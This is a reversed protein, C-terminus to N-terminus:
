DEHWRIWDPKSGDNVFFYSIAKYCQEVGISWSKPYEDLQGNSLRYTANGFQDPNGRSTFGSDGNERLYMLFADDGSRLMCMSPGDQVNAWVEFQDEQDYRDMAEGLDQITAIIQPKNNFNIQVM